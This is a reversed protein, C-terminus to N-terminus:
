GTITLKVKIEDELEGETVQKFTNKNCIFFKDTLPNKFKSKLIHTTLQAAAKEAPLNENCLQFAIATQGAPELKAKETVRSFFRHPFKSNNDQLFTHNSVLDCYDNLIIYYKIFNNRKEIATDTISKSRKFLEHNFKFDLLALLQAILHKSIDRFIENPVLQRSAQDTSSLLLFSWVKYTNLLQLRIDNNTDKLTFNMLRKDIRGDNIRYEYSILKQLYNDIDETLLDHILFFNNRLMINLIKYAYESNYEDNIIKDTVHEYPSIYADNLSVAQDLDTSHQILLLLAEQQNEKWLFKERKSPQRVRHLITLLASNIDENDLPITTHNLLTIIFNYAEQTALYFLFSKYHDFVDVRYSTNPNAGHDLLLALMEPSKASLIIPQQLTFESPSTEDYFYDERCQNPNENANLAFIAMEINDNTVADLLTHSNM